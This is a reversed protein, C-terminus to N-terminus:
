VIAGYLDDFSDDGFAADNAGKPHRLSWRPSAPRNVIDEGITAFTPGFVILQAANIAITM